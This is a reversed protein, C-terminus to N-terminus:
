YRVAHRFGARELHHETWGGALRRRVMVVGSEMGVIEVRMAPKTAFHVIFRQGVQKGLERYDRIAGAMAEDPQPPALFPEEPVPAPPPAPDPARTSAALTALSARLADSGSPPPTSATATSSSPASVEAVPAAADVSAPAEGTERQLRAFATLEDDEPFPRATTQRLPMGLDVGNITLRGALYPLVDGWTPEDDEDFPPDGHYEVAFEISGGGNAYTAYASVFGAEAALGASQLLRQVTRVHRNAFVEPTIGDERACYANRAKAFGDDRVIWSDSVLEDKGTEYYSLLPLNDHVNAVGKHEIAGIGRREVRTSTEFRGSARSWTRTMTLPELPLGLAAFEEELWLDHEVCGSAEFPAFTAAGFLDLDPSLPLELNGRGGEFVMTVNHIRKLWNSRKVLATTYEVFPIEVRVSDFRYAHETMGAVPVLTVDSATAGGALRPWAARYSIDWGPYANELSRKVIQNANFFLYVTVLVVLGVVYAIRKFSAGGKAPKVAQGAM